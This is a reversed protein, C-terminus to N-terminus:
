QTRGPESHGGIIMLEDELWIANHGHKKHALKTELKEWDDNEFKAILALPHMQFQFHEFGGILYVATASHTMAYGSIGAGFFITGFPYDPLKEWTLVGNPHQQLLETHKHDPSYSGTTFAQGKYNALRARAHRYRSDAIVKWNSADTMDEGDTGDFRFYSM